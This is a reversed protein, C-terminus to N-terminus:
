KRSEALVVCCAPLCLFFPVAFVTSYFDLEQLTKSAATYSTSVQLHQWFPAGLLAHPSSPSLSVPSRVSSLLAVKVVARGLRGHARVNEHWCAHMIMPKKERKRAGTYLVSPLYCTSAPHTSQRSHETRVFLYTSQKYLSPLTYTSVEGTWDRNKSNPSRARPVRSFPRPESFAWLLVLVLARDTCSADQVLYGTKPTTNPGRHKLPNRNISHTCCHYYHFFFISAELREHCKEREAAAAGHAERSSYRM